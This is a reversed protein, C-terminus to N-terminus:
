RPNDEAVGTNLIGYRRIVTSDADSLIPLTVGYRETFRAILEVPEPSVVFVRM